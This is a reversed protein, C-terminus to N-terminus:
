GGNLGDGQGVQMDVRRFHARGQHGVQLGRTSVGASLIEGLIERSLEAAVKGAM